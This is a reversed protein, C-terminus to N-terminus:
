HFSMDHATKRKPLVILLSNDMQLVLLSLGGLHIERTGIVIGYPSALDMPDLSSSLHFDEPFVTYRSELMECPKMRSPVIEQMNELKGFCSSSLNHFPKPPM